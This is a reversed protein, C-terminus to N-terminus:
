FTPTNCSYGNLSGYSPCGSAYFYPQRPRNFRQGWVSDVSAARGFGFGRGMHVGGFGGGMHAVGGFGGAHGGGGGGRAFADASVVGTLAAATALVIMTKRLM